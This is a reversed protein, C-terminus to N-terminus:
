RAAARGRRLTRRQDAHSSPYCTVVEGDEAVVKLSKNTLREIQQIERKRKAIERNADARKILWADPAVPTGCAMVLEVDERRVARQSMRIQAHSTIGYEFM